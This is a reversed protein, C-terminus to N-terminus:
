YVMSSNVLLFFPRSTSRTTFSYSFVDEGAKPLLELTTRSMKNRFNGCSFFFKVGLKTLFVRSLCEVVYAVVRM